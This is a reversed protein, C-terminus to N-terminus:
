ELKFELDLHLILEPKIQDLDKARYLLAVSADKAPQSLHDRQLDALYQRNFSSALDPFQRKVVEAVEDTLKPNAFSLRNNKALENYILRAIDQRKSKPLDSALAETLQAKTVQAVRPPKITVQSVAVPISVKASVIAMGQPHYDAM